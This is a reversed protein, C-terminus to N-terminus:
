RSVLFLALNIAVIDEVAAVVFDPVNLQTVLRKRTQYGVFAGIVAGVAGLVAGIGLSQNASACLCAGSLGGTVIRALLPAVATRKPVRPLKDGILEGIALLSFIVVAAKSGMFGLSTGQLHLWGLHAAWAVAAPALLSRLGAVVGIGVALAFVFNSSM